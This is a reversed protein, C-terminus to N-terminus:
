NKFFKKKFNKKLSRIKKFNKKNFSIVPTYVFYVDVYKKFIDKLYTLIKFFFSKTGKMQIILKHFNENKKYNKLVSKIMLNVIKNSKKNKKKIINLKKTIIGPTISFMLNNKYSYTINLKKKLFNFTLVNHYYFRKFFNKKITYKRNFKYLYYFIHFIKKTNILKKNFNNKNILVHSFLFFDEIFKDFYRSWRKSKHELDRKDNLINTPDLEYFIVYEEAIFFVENKKLIKIFLDNKSDDILKTNYISYLINWYIIYIIITIM